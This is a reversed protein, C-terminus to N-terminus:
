SGQLDKGRHWCGKGKVVFRSLVTLKLVMFMRTQAADPLSYMSQDSRSLSVSFMPLKGKHSLYNLM